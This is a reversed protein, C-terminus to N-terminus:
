KQGKSELTELLEVEFFGSLAMEQGKIEDMLPSDKAIVFIIKDVSSEKMLPMFVEVLWKTDAKENEFGSKTDTIWTSIKHERIEELAYLLPNRYDDGKCFHKWQCLLANDAKLHQINCYKTHYPM